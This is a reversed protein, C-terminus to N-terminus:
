PSRSLRRTLSLWHTQDAGVKKQRIKIARQADGVVAGGSRCSAHEPETLQLGRRWVSFRLAGTLISESARLNREWLRILISRSQALGPVVALLRGGPLTRSEM